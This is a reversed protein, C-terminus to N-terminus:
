YNLGRNYLLQNPTQLLAACGTNDDGDDHGVQKDCNNESVKLVLVPYRSNVNIINFSICSLIM